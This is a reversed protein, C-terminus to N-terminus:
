ISIIKLTQIEMKVLNLTILTNRLAEQLTTAQQEQIVKNTIVSVTQPTDVLDQLVKNSSSKDVKYNESYNIKEKEVVDVQELTTSANLMIPTTLLVGATVISAGLYNTSKHKESKIYKNM